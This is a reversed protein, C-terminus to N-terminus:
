APGCRDQVQQYTATGDDTQYLGTATDSQRPHWALEPPLSWREKKRHGGVWGGMWTLVTPIESTRQVTLGPSSKMTEAM